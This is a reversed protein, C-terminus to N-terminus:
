ARRGVFLGRGLAGSEALYEVTCGASRFAAEYEARDFLRLPYDDTFHHIGTDPDAVAFHVTVRTERGNRTTRSLRAVARGSDTITAGAVHGDLFTEPFWWPEIVIVGGPELHAAFRELTAELGAVSDVHGISSFMCTVVDFTRGLDFDRMDGQHVPVEPLKERAVEVMGDALEVGEVHAFLDRFARLHPGTGCAVDLLSAADPFRETVLRRVEKAEAAYDKGTGEYFSVYIDAFEKGYM